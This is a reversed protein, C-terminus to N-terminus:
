HLVGFYLMVALALGAFLRYWGFARFDRTSVFRILWSIVALAVIFSVVFGLALVAANGGDLEHRHKVLAYGSAAFMTPIALFFSFETAARREVGILLAGMITAGSRSVGPILAFLQCCGIGLATKLPLNMADVHQNRHRNREILLIILGGVALSNAVVLPTMLHEIHDSLLYGVLAFPLFALFLSGVFRRSAAESPLTKAVQWLRQRYSWCVALIAGLQIVIEFAERAHEFNLLEGAVILHGTSSVPIFETLGEVIGMAIAKAATLLDM